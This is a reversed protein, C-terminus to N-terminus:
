KRRLQVYFSCDTNRNGKADVATYAVNTTGLTFVSGNPITAEVKTVKVNDSYSPEVWTVM